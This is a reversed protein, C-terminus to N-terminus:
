SGALIFAACCRRMGLRVACLAQSERGRKPTRGHEAAKVNIGRILRLSLIV